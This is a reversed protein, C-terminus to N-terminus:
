PKTPQTSYLKLRKPNLPRRPAAVGAQVEVLQTALRKAGWASPQGSWGWLM